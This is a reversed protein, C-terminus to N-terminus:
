PRTSARRCMSPVMPTWTTTHIHLRSTPIPKCGKLMFTRTAALLGALYSTDGYNATLNTIANGNKDFLRASDTNFTLTVTSGMLSVGPEPQVQQLTIRALNQNTVDVAQGEAILNSNYQIDTTVGDGALDTGDDVLNVYNSPDNSKQDATSVAAGYNGGTRYATLTPM